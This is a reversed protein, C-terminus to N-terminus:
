FTKFVDVPSCLWPQHTKYTVPVPQSVKDEVRFHDRGVRSEDRRSRPDTSANVRTSAGEDRGVPTGRGIDGIEDLERGRLVSGLFLFDPRRRTLAASLRRAMDSTGSGTNQM